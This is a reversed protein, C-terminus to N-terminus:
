VISSTIVKGVYFHTSIISSVTTSCIGVIVKTSFTFTDHAISRIGKVLHIRSNIKRALTGKCVKFWQNTISKTLWLEIDWFAVIITSVTRFRVLIWLFTWSGISRISSTIICVVAWFTIKIITFTTAFSIQCFTLFTDTFIRIIRSFSFNNFTLVWHEFAISFTIIFIIVHFTIPITSITTTTM